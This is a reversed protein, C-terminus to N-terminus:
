FTRSHSLFYPIKDVLKFRCIYQQRASLLDRSLSHAVSSDLCTLSDLKLNSKLLISYLSISVSPNVILACMRFAVTTPGGDAPAKLTLLKLESAGVSLVKTYLLAFTSWGSEALKVLATVEWNCQFMVCFSVSYGPLNFNFLKIIMVIQREKKISQALCSM